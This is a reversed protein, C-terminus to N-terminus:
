CKFELASKALTIEETAAGSWSFLFFFWFQPSKKKMKNLLSDSIMLADHCILFPLTVRQFCFCDIRTEHFLSIRCDGRVWDVSNGLTGAANVRGALATKKEKKKRQDKKKIKAYVDSAWSTGPEFGAGAM